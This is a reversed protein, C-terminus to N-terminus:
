DEGETLLGYARMKNYLTKRDINLMKAAKSKNFQVKQLTDTIMEYEANLAAKKINGTDFSPKPAFPKEIAQEDQSPNFKKHHIIEQPLASLEVMTGSSLLASRKVINNLERLNGPWNYQMFAAIADEAFGDMTKDLEVCAKQLFFNAFQMVDEKRERLPPLTIGFENFRYFLDERFKGKAVSEDLKENSAVIIRVDVPTEKESGVKKVKREQVVRLLSMQVDYGLNAIEDLFITGGNALEFSGTKNNIAGTFSGKEHGFLESAALEKSLAGCDVAIFPKDARKSKEHIRQAVSEKGTGSEGYVIVSYNTQAVLDIQKYMETAAQSKAEVYKNTSKLKHTTTTNKQHSYQSGNSPVESEFNIAKSITLLIEEPLLPKTVYDFAGNKMVDVAIKVDSYGTIFILKTNLNQQNIYELIKIGDMDGLRYDCLVVETTNKDLEAMGKSGTNAIAVEYGNKKLFRALLACTDLDDEIILIQHM